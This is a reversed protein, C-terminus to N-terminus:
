SGWCVAELYNKYIAGWVKSNGTKFANMRFYMVLRGRHNLIRIAIVMVKTRM